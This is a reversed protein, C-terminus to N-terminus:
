RPDCGSSTMQLISDTECCRRHVSPRKGGTPLSCGLAILGESSSDAVHSGARLSHHYPAIGVQHLDFYGPASYPSYGHLPAIDTLDAQRILIAVLRGHGPKLKHAAWYSAIAGKGTQGSNPRVEAM